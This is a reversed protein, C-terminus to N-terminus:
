AAIKLSQKDLFFISSLLLQIGLINWSQHHPFNESMLLKCLNLSLCFDVFTPIRIAKQLHQLNPILTYSEKIAQYCKSSIGQFEIVFPICQKKISNEESKQLIWERSLASAQRINTLQRLLISERSVTSKLKM